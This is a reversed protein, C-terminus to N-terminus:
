KVDFEQGREDAPLRAEVFEVNDFVHLTAEYVSRNKFYANSHLRVRLGLMAGLAAMHLRDTEIADFQLLMHMAVALPGTCSRRDGWVDGNWLLPLDISGLPPADRGSEADTRFMLITQHRRDEDGQKL